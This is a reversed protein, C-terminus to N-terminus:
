QPQIKQMWVRKSAFSSNPKRNSNVRIEVGTNTYLNLVKVLEHILTVPDQAKSVPVKQKSTQKLAQLKFCNPRTHRAGGCFCCFWQPKHNKKSCSQNLNKPKSESLDVIIRRSAPVVDKHVEVEYLTLHVVFSSTALVFKFTNVVTTSRNEVFGLSTKDSISKQVHLM